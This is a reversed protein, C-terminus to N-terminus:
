RDNALSDIYAVIDEVSLVDAYKADMDFINAAHPEPARDSVCEAPVAVRYGYSLADVVSARICGSTACGTVIVTDIRMPILLPVLGTEFFASPARKSLVFDNATPAIRPDIQTAAPDDLRLHRLAPMKRGWTVADRTEDLYAMTTYVVPVNHDRAVELLRAIHQLATTQDSGVPHSPDTFPRTMDVVLVAPSKGLGIRAGIGRTEYFARTDAKWDATM